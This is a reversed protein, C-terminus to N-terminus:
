RLPLDLYSQGTFTIGAGTPNADLYLADETDVILALRHGSAVTYSTAPFAIDVGLAANPTAGLWTAPAHAILKGAGLSDVDYLYAVVTGDAKAPKVTLHLRPIGRIPTSSLSASLWVGATVRNIAPLWISPSSGTLGTWANTLLAVGATAGSDGLALATRSWGTTASGGLTGTGTLLNVERLGMRTTSGTVHAWDVASETAGGSQSKLVVPPEAAIGTNIGQLYQDFWRRLSTWVANGLGVLGTAEVVAHDGPALELRKPGTLQGFFDVLQNPPFLSDGYANAMLIAPHNANIANIYTAASRVRAFAKIGEINRNNWYDSLVTNLESSPRGLLTAAVQLLAVAQPRRTSAGYLSEVLDTWGSMAVVAKIRSDFASGLLSIGAGYSVGAAGLRAPDATTNAITWDIVSRLDAIDEPGATAIRGGSGWWGRPTYSVVTYGATALAEAQAVYELDNLAWSSPMVIAPHKGPSTSENVNAKLVVGDSAVIDVFRLGTTPAAQAATSPVLLLGGVVASVTITSAWALWRSRRM